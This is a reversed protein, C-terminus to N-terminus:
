AQNQERSEKYLAEAALLIKNQYIFFHWRSGGVQRWLTAARIGALLLARIQHAIRDQQLFNYDGSVHIRHSFKSITDTYIEAINAIVNDHTMSFHGVQQEAKKLRNGIIYLIETRRSLSKELHLIGLIYRLIDRYKPNRHDNILEILGAFGSELATTGNFVSEASEPSTAFLSSICTQMVEAKAYGNKALQDVCHCAQFVGALAIVHNHWSNDM